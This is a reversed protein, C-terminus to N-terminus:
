RGPRGAPVATYQTAVAQWNDGNKVFVRLARVMGDIRRGAIQGRVALLDSTLATTGYLRVASEKLDVQEFRVTGARFKALQSKKTDVQGQSSVQSYDDAWVKELAAADDHAEANYIEQNVRIVEREDRNSQGLVALSGAALWVMAAVGIGLRVRM